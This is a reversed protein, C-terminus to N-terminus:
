DNDSKRLDLVTVSEITTDPLRHVFLGESEVVNERRVHSLSSEMIPMNEFILPVYDRFFAESETFGSAAAFNIAGFIFHPRRQELIYTELFSRNKMNKAIERDVLGGLDVLGIKRDYSIGGADHHALIPDEIRLLESVRAFESGIESVVALPTTPRAEFSDLQKVTVIALVVSILAGCWLKATPFTIAFLGLAAFIAVLSTVPMLFRYQGMWDGGAWIVFLLHGSLVATLALLLRKRDGSFAFCILPLTMILASSNLGDIIYSWGAGFPNLVGAFDSGSAKAYYPNPFMDGFYIIRWIVLAVFCLFPLLAIELYQLIKFNYDNRWSWLMVAAYTTMVILPAEPRTLVLMSLLFATKLRWRNVEFGVVLVILVLLVGQLAHEQGSSVWVVFPATSTSIGALVLCIASRTQSWVIQFVATLTVLGLVMGLFKATNPIDAGILGFFALMLMWLSSSYGETPPEGPQFTVGYGDSLTRSYSFTIGADDIWWASMQMAFFIFSVLLLGSVALEARVRKSIEYGDALLAVAVSFIATGFGWMVWTRESIVGDLRAFRALIAEPVLLSALGLLGLSIAALIPFVRIFM